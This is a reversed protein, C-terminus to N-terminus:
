LIISLPKVDSCVGQHVVVAVGSVRLEASMNAMAIIEREMEWRKEPEVEEEEEEEEDMEEAFGDAAFDDDQEPSRRGHQLPRASMLVHM